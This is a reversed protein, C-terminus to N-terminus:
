NSYEAKGKIDKELVYECLCSKDYEITYRYSDKANIDESDIVKCVETIEGIVDKKTAYLNIIVKDKINFKNM